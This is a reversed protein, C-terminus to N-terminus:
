IDEVKIWQHDEAMKGKTKLIISFPDYEDLGLVELYERLGSRSEPICREKIFDCFDEWSPSMNRGFATLVPDDSFNETMVEKESHDAYIITCLSDYNYYSYKKLINNKLKKSKIFENVTQKKKILISENNFILEVERDSESIKLKKIWSTPLSLKYTASNKGATGGAKSCIINANRKEM